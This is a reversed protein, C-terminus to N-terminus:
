VPESRASSPQHRQLAAYCAATALTKRHAAGLTRQQIDRARQYLAAAQALRGQQQCLLALDRLTTATHPHDRGLTQERITLARQYLPEALHLTQKHLYFGALAHLSLATDPHGAGMHEERLTLARRLLGEGSSVSGGCSPVRSCANIASRRRRCACWKRAWCVAM